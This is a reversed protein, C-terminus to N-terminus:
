CSSGNPTFIVRRARPRGTPPSRSYASWFVNSRAKDPLCSIFQHACLDVRPFAPQPGPLHRPSFFRIQAQFERSKKLNLHRIVMSLTLSFCIIMVRWDIRFRDRGGLCIWQCSLLRGVDSVCSLLNQLRVTGICLFCRYKRRYLDQRRTSFRALSGGAL